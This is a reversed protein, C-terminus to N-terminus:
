VTTDTHKRSCLYRAIDPAGSRISVKAFNKRKRDLEMPESLIREILLGFSKVDQTYWGVGKRLVFDRTDRENAMTHTCIFPRKMLLAELVTNAGTKGVVFDSAKILEDMNDVFGKVILRIDGSDIRKLTRYLSDNRGCVVIVSMKLGRRVVEKVLSETNSIGEGGATFLACVSTPRIGERRRLSSKSISVRGFSPRLPYDFIRIPAKVGFSKLRSMIQRSAVIYEKAGPVVWLAHAGYPETTVVSVPLGAKAIGAAATFHTSIILDPKNKAYYKLFKPAIMRAHRSLMSRSFVPNDTQVHLVSFIQPFSLALNWVKKIERDVNKVDLETGCDMLHVSCGLAEMSEAIAAAPAKHGGGTNFYAIVAKM